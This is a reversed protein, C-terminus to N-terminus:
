DKGMNVMCQAGNHLLGVFALFDGIGFGRLASLLYSHDVRNFAKEQDM